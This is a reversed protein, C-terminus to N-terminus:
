KWELYDAAPILIGGEDDTKLPFSAGCTVCKLYFDFDDPNNMRLLEWHLCDGCTCSLKQM